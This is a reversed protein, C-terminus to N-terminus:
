FPIESPDVDGAGSPAGQGTPPLADDGGDDGGAYPSESSQGQYGPGSPEDFHFKERMGAASLYTLEEAFDPVEIVEEWKEPDIKKGLAELPWAGVLDFDDGVTASRSDSRSVDLMVGALSGGNQAAKKALKKITQGKAAFIRKRNKHEKGERDTYITTDIIGFLGVFSAFNGAECLPCTETRSVCVYFSPVKSGHSTVKHEEVFDIDFSGKEEGETAIDGNLFFIRGAAEPKLYYRWLKDRNLKREEAAEQHENAIEKAKSGSMLWSPPGQGASKQSVGGAAKTKKGGVNISM